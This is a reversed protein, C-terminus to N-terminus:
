LKTASHVNLSGAHSGLRRSAFPQDFHYQRTPFFHVLRGTSASLELFGEVERGDIAQEGASRHYSDRSRRVGLWRCRALRCIRM